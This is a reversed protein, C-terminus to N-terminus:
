QNELTSAKNYYLLVFLQTQSFILKKNKLCKKTYPFYNYQLIKINIERKLATNEAVKKKIKLLFYNKHQM